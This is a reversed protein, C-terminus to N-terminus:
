SPLQRLFRRTFLLYPILVLLAQSLVSGFVVGPIGMRKTLYISCAINGLAALSATIVQFRIVTAANLLIAFPLSIAALVSWVGLGSMLLLSPQVQPGVWLRLIRPGLGIFLAGFVVSLSFLTWFSRRLTQRIWANDRKALAEGYAPWLPGVIISSAFTLLGCLKAPVSYQTVAEPGMIQALVLNDASFALASALQLVFFLLGSHLLDASIGRKVQSWVPRLWPRDHGFLVVGNAGAALLPGGTMALVLFTLSLRLKIAFLIALLGTSNGAISWLHTTFGQQYGSQIRMAIGAPFGMLFCCVFMAAAPGAESIAQASRVHFIANWPIWRYAIALVLGLSGAIATLFFFASSVYQQALRRDQVGHSKAIGNLLGNSIGLDSFGLFLILSSMTMWLGYRETGLYRLTLPVSILNTGVSIAKALGSALTTLLARRHREKSRGEASSSDFATFLTKRGSFSPLTDTSDPM